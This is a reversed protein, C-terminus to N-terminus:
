RRRSHLRPASPRSSGGTTFTSDASISRSGSSDVSEVRFHYVTGAQLGTLTQSHATVFTANLPSSSGYATTTGYEVQSTAAINTTWTITAGSTLINTAALASIVPGPSSTTSFSNDGSVTQTGSADASRVRYHYTTSAQLGNLTQSHATVLSANLTSSSGYTSTTGYEVQSNASVNTTWSITASFAAINNATIASIAPPNNATSFTYDGSVTLTGSGDASRLRFHYTTSAQLGSLTQSHATVLTSGLSSLSGYATTTGYEVQSTAAINTTWSISAGSTSINTATVASIVPGPNATTAFSSDSSVTLTGTGDASRVRYHYTTGAQLGSLSQSHATVLTSDLSSLSGYATTTGYEVQSTAAINTTWSISAGSTSINTATLASVVPGPNATTTFSSDGSVTLTGTGDASRVRYHYTTCGVLGSLTQNHSTVLTSDLSSLSGYATTTGYEVQSTAAINTTWSITAGSTSINTATVASIVPGPNATTAFSNDGSVTLTGTGDASRVRYHYTTGGQFGTLSQSHGTVFASDLTSLTGYATTTGYEVQSTAAINTTWSITAGSTSINNASIGSVIPGTFNKSAETSFASEVGAADYATVAFYYTGAGLNNVIYSPPTGVNLGVSLSSSYVGSTTGFYVKYGALDTLPTGDVNTTPASWTLTASGAMASKEGHILFILLFVAMSISLYKIWDHAKEDAKLYNAIGLIM